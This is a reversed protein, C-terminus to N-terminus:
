EEAISKAYSAQLSEDIYHQYKPKRYYDKRTKHTNGKFKSHKAVLNRRQRRPAKRDPISNDM